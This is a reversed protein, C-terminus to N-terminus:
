QGVETQYWPVFLQYMPLTGHATLLRVDLKNFHKPLKLMVRKEALKRSSNQIFLSWLTQTLEERVVLHPCPFSMMMRFLLDNETSKWFESKVYYTLCVEM